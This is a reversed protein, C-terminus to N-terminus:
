QADQIGILVLGNGGDLSNAPFDTYPAAAALETGGSTFFRIGTEGPTGNGGIELEPTYGNLTSGLIFFPISPSALGPVQADELGNPNGATNFNIVEANGQAYTGNFSVSFVRLFPQRGSARLYGRFNVTNAM